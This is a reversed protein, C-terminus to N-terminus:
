QRLSLPLGLVERLIIARRMDAASFTLKAPKGARRAPALAYADHEVEVPAAANGSIAQAAAIIKDEASHSRSLRQERVAAIERGRRGRQIELTRLQDAEIRQAEVRAAADQSRESQKQQETDMSRPQAQGTSRRQSTRTPPRQDSRTPPRDSSQPPRALPRTPAPRAPAGQTPARAPTQSGSALAARRRRIEEIQARRRAAMEELSARASQQPSMVSPAEAEPPRGTRLSDLQQQERRRIATKRDAQGKLSGLIKVFVGGFVFVLTAILNFWQSQSM